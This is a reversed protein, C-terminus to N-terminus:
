SYKNSNMVLPSKQITSIIKKYNKVDKLKNNFLKANKNDTINVYKLMEKLNYFLQKFTDTM